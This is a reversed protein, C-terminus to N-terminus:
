PRVGGPTSKALSAFKWLYRWLSVYASLDSIRPVLMTWKVHTERLYYRIVMASLLSYSISSALAAGSIGMHPILLLNGAINVIAAVIAVWVTFRVKERALMETVLIKGATAAFIGPLLWRLPAVVGSFASSYLAEVAIDASIFVLLCAGATCLLVHRAIVAPLGPDREPLGTLHPLLANAVAGTMFWLPEALSVAIAYFGLQEPPLLAAIIFQDARYNLYGMISACYAPLAFRGTRWWLARDFEPRGWAQTHGLVIIMLILTGVITICNAWVAGAVDFGLWWVLVFILVLVSAKTGVEILNLLLIRNMGRLITGWYTVAMALPITSMPLIYLWLPGHVLIQTGAAGFVLFCTGAIAIFGGVVGAMATSHWVLARRRDPELGAYVANAQDLGLLGFSMALEPLLLVLTFLGRGEPGLARALVVSSLLAMAMLAIRASLTTFINHALQM